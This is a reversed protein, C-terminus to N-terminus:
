QECRLQTPTWFCWRQINEADGVKEIRQLSENLMKQSIPAKAACAVFALYQFITKFDNATMSSSEPISRSNQLQKIIGDLKIDTEGFDLFIWWIIVM